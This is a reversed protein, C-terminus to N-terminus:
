TPTQGYITIQTPESDSRLNVWFYLKEADIIRMNVCGHSMPHGFNNHWYTGHLGFGSGDSVGSGGFFMVWPVNPLDYFDAGAGGTMRTAEIKEWITFNGTPTPHWKGSSIPVQMFISDGQYATLMQTSLDVYIHKSGTSVEEGLVKKSYQWALGIDPAQIKQGNFEAM